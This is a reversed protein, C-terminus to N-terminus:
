LRNAIVMAGIVGGDNGLPAIMADRVEHDGELEISTTNLLFAKGHEVVYQHVPRWASAAAEAMVSTRGEAVSTILYSDGPASPFLVIEAQEARFMTRSHYLLQVLASDLEPTPQLILTSAYPLEPSEHQPP